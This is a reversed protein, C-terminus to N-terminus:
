CSFIWKVVSLLMNGLYKFFLGMFSFIRKFFSDKESNAKADTLKSIRKDPAPHTSLISHSKSLAALKGLATKAIEPAIGQQKLFSMGFLDAELEEHQSFQAHTLQQVFGGLVSSALLGVENEQSALGKRIASSAYALVVKKRSHNNVVHGIEHGIVFLVEDDNLIDMLGQNIRISGDALAFANIDDTQYVKFSFHYGNIPGINETLRLLRKSYTNGPPLVINQQDIKRVARSSLDKVQDDTLTVAKLADNAAETALRINTDECGVSFIGFFLILLVQVNNKIM